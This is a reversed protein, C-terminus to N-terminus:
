YLIVVKKYQKTKIDQTSRAIRISLYPEMYKGLNWGYHTSKKAIFFPLYIDKKTNFLITLRQARNRGIYGKLVTLDKSPSYLDILVPLGSNHKRIINIVDQENAVRQQKLEKIFSSTLLIKTM